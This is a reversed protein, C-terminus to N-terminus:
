ETTIKILDIKSKSRKDYSVLELKKIFPKTKKLFDFLFFFKAKFRRNSHLDTIIVPTERRLYLYDDFYIDPVQGTEVGKLMEKFTESSIEAFSNQNEIKSLKPKTITKGEEGIAGKTRGNNHIRSVEQSDNRKNNLESDTHLPPLAPKDSSPNSDKVPITDITTDPIINLIPNNNNQFRYWIILLALIIISGIIYFFKNRKKSENGTTDVTFPKKETAPTINKDITLVPPNVNVTVAYSRLKLNENSALLEYKISIAKDGTGKETLVVQREVAPIERDYTDNRYLHIATANEVDWNLKFVEGDNVFEKDPYFSLFKPYLVKEPEIIVEIEESKVKTSENSAALQYKINKTKGDYTKEALELKTEGANLKIDFAENKYLEVTTANDTICTLIFPENSQVTKKNATFEIIQISSEPKDPAVNLTNRIIKETVLYRIEDDFDVENKVKNESFMRQFLQGFAPDIKNLMSPLRAFDADPLKRYKLQNKEANCKINLIFFILQLKNFLSGSLDALKIDKFGLVSKYFKYVVDWYDKCGYLDNDPPQSIHQVSDLDVLFFHGNTCCFINKECFDPFWFQNYHIANLAQLLDGSLMELNIEDPPTEYHDLTVGDLYDCFVYYVNKGKEQVNVIDHIRPLNKKYKGKVQNMFDWGSIREPSKKEFRKVFCQYPGIAVPFKFPDGASFFWQDKQTFFDSEYEFEKEKIIVRM